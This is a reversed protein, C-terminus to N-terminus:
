ATLVDVIDQAAQILAEGQALSLRRSRILANVQDIFDLLKNAAVLPKGDELRMQAAILKRQLGAAEQTTLDGSAVLAAVASMLDDLAEAPTLAGVTAHDNATAGDDDTVVLTALYRGPFAYAHTVQEGSARTGDGLDWAYSVISGDPDLSQSGDLMADKTVLVRIDPGADAIPPQNRFWMVAHTEGTETESYGVVDGRSNIGQAGSECGGPLTGLDIMGTTREWLFARDCSGVLSTGVVQGVGNIDRADSKTGGLTGLDEMGQGDIWLFAHSQGAATASGGVVHGATNIARASSSAGGLTGLDRMAGNSWIFAHFSGASTTTRGVVQGGDNVDWATGGFGGLSGLAIVAGSPEWLVPHDLFNNQSPLYLTNSGVVQGVANTGFGRAGLAGPLVGLEAMGTVPEWVFARSQGAATYSWGTVAGTSNIDRAISLTGGLTGLDEM